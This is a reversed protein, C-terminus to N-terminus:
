RPEVTAVPTVCTPWCCAASAGSAGLTTLVGSCRASTRMANATVAEADPKFEISASASLFEELQAITTLKSENMNIVRRPIILGGVSM